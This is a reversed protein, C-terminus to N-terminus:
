LIDINLCKILLWRTSFCLFLCLTIKEDIKECVLLMCWAFSPPSLAM